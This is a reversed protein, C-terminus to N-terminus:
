ERRPRTQEKNKIVQMCIHVLSEIGCKGGSDIAHALEVAALVLTLIKHLMAGFSVLLNILFHNM